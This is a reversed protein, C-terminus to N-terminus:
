LNTLLWSKIRVKDNEGDCRTLQHEEFMYNEIAQICNGDKLIRKRISKNLSGLNLLAMLSEFDELGEFQPDLLLFSPRGVDCSWWGPFAIAPDQTIGIRALASVVDLALPIMGKSGGQQVM